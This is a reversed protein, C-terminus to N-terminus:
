NKVQIKNGWDRMKHIKTINAYRVRLLELELQRLVEQTLKVKEDLAIDVRTAQDRLNRIFHTYTTNLTSRLCNSKQRTAESAKLGEQM